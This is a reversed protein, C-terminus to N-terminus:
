GLFTLMAVLASRKTGDIVPQTEAIGHELVPADLALDADEYHAYSQLRGLEGELIDRSRLQDAARAATGGIIAAFIELALYM